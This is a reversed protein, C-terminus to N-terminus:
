SLDELIQVSLSKMTTAVELVKLEDSIRYFARLPKGVRAVGGEKRCAVWGLEELRGLMTSLTGSALGSRTRVQSFTAEGFHAIAALARVTELSLRM